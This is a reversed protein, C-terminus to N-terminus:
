LGAYPRDGLSGSVGNARALRKWRMQSAMIYLRRPIVLKSISETCEEITSGGSATVDALCDMSPRARRGRFGSEALPTGDITPGGPYSIGGIWRLGIDSCFRQLIELALDNQHAEPFGCNVIATFRPAPSQSVISRIEAIKSFVEVVHGPLSDVYLPAALIIYDARDLGRTLEVVSSERRNVVHLMVIDSKIGRQELAESLYDLVSYSTSRKGKPSGSLLLVESTM